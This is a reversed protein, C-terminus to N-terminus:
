TNIFSKVEELKANYKRIIEMRADVIAKKEGLILDYARKM